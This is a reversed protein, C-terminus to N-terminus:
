ARLALIFEFGLILGYAGIAPMVGSELHSNGLFLPGLITCLIHYPTYPIHCM